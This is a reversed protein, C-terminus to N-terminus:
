IFSRCVQHFYNKFLPISIKIIGDDMQEFSNHAPDKDLEYFQSHIGHPNRLVIMQKAPDLGVITYAHTPVVLQPGIMHGVDWTACVCPNQSKVAGGIFSSLEEESSTRPYLLEAKCGTICGLGIALRSEENDAGNAGANDPFKQLQAYEIISAWRAKDHISADELEDDNVGYEVGDGPFRVVYSNKKYRILSALLKQGRPLESLAAMSAEFWCNPYRSQDIGRAGDKAIDEATFPNEVTGVKPQPVVAVKPQKAQVAAVTKEAQRISKVQEKNEQV